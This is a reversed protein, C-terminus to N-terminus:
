AGVARGSATAGFGGRAVPGVKPAVTTGGRVVTSGVSPYGGRAYAAHYYWFYLAGGSGRPRECQEASVVHNANDVCVRAQRERSDCAITLGLAAVATVVVNGSKKM